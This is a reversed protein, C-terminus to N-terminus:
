FSLRAHEFLLRPLDRQEFDAVFVKCRHTKLVRTQWGGPVDFPKYLVVSRDARTLHLDDITETMFYIGEANRM